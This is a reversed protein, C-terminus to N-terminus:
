LTQKQTLLIAKSDSLFDHLRDGPNRIDTTNEPQNESRKNKWRIENRHCFHNHVHNKYNLKVAFAGSSQSYHPM